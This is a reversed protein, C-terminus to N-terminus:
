LILFRRRTTATSSKPCRALAANTTRRSCRRWRTGSAVFMSCLPRGALSLPTRMAVRGLLGSSGGSPEGSRFSTLGDACRRRRRVIRSRAPWRPTSRTSSSASSRAATACRSSAPRAPAAFPDLVTARRAQRRPHVARDAEAPLHRLARGAYPTTTVTWVSRKNRGLGDRGSLRASGATRRRRGGSPELSPQGDLVQRAHDNGMDPERIADADYYYRPSKALLFLHEHARTPRDTVSEPMCNRKAWIVESRLYWGDARLAFAVMWPIGILDKRKLGCAGGAGGVRHAARRLGCTSIRAAASETACSSRAQPRPLQRRAAAAAHRAPPPQVRRQRAAHAHRRGHGLQELRPLVVDVLRRLRRRHRARRDRACGDEPPSSSCRPPRSPPCRRSTSASSRSTPASARCTPTPSASTRTACTCSSPGSRSAPRTPRSPSATACSTRRSASPSGAELALDKLRRRMDPYSWARGATPPDIVCLLAGRPNPLERRVARWEDLFPWAWQAMRIMAQKDGKGHRIQIRGSEDDLDAETVALAEFARLAGQWMLVIAAYLRRGYPTPPCARLMAMCETVTPPDPPFRMGKNAPAVGRHAGPRNAPSRHRGRADLVLEADVIEVDDVLPIITSTAAVRQALALMDIPGGTPRRAPYRSM